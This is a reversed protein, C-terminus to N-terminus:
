TEKKRNRWRNIDRETQRNKQIYTHRGAEIGAETDTEREKERPKDTM